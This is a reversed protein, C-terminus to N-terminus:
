HLDSSIDTGTTAAVKVLHKASSGCAISDAPRSEVYSASGSIEKKQAFSGISLRCIFM